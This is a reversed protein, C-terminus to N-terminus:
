VVRCPSSIRKLDEEQVVGERSLVAVQRGRKGGLRM